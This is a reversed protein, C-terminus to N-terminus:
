DDSFADFDFDDEIDRDEPDALTFFYSEVLAPEEGMKKLDFVRKQGDAYRLSMAIGFQGEDNEEDVSFMLAFNDTPMGDNENM